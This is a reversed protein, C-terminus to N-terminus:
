EDRNNLIFDGITWGGRIVLKQPHVYVYSPMQRFPVVQNPKTNDDLYLLRVHYEGAPLNSIFVSDSQSIVQFLPEEKFDKLLHIEVKRKNPNSFLIAADGYSNKDTINFHLTDEESFREDMYHIAGKNLVLTYSTREEFPYDITISFPNTSLSFDSIPFTDRIFLHVHERRTDRIVQNSHLILPEGPILATKNKIDLHYDPKQHPYNVQVTDKIVDNLSIYYQLQTDIDSKIFDVLLLTDKHISTTYIVQSKDFSQQSSLINVRGNQPARFPLYFSRIDQPIASYTVLPPDLSNKAVRLTLTDYPNVPDPLYGMDEGMDIRKNHNIDNFAYLTYATNRIAPITFSGNSATKSLYLPYILSDPYTTIPTHFLAVTYADLTQGTYNDYVYGQIFATDIESGTSFSLKYDPLINKENIDQLANILQVTYTSSDHLPEKFQIRLYKGVVELKPAKVPPPSILVANPDKIDFYEDFYIRIERDQFNVQQSDPYTRIAKPPTEDKDGGTPHVVVACASLLLLLPLIKKM